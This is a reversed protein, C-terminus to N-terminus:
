INGEKELVHIYGTTGLVEPNPVEIREVVKWGLEPNLARDTTVVVCGNPCAESLPLSWEETDLILAGVDPDFGTAKFATSYAFILDANSLLGQGHEDTASGCHLSLVNRDGQSRQTELGDDNERIPGHEELIGRDVGTGIVELAKDHLLSSIEVGRIDWGPQVDAEHDRGDFTEGRTLASYLVIRGLGSGIDVMRIPSIGAPLYEVAADLLRDLSALPFEAYTRALRPDDSLMVGVEENDDGQSYEQEAAKRGFVIRDGYESSPLFGQDELMERAEERGIRSNVSWSSSANLATSSVSSKPSVGTRSSPEQSSHNSLSLRRHSHWVRPLFANSTSILGGTVVFAM